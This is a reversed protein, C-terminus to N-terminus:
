AKGSVMEWSENGIMPFKISITSIDSSDYVVGNAHIPNSSDYKGYIALYDKPYQYAIRFAKGNLVCKVSEEDGIFLDVVFKRDADIGFRITNVPKGDIFLTLKSADFIPFDIGIHEKNDSRHYRKSNNEKAMQKVSEDIQSKVQKELNNVFHKLEDESTKFDM